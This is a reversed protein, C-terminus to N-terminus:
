KSLARELQAIIGMLHILPQMENGVSAYALTSSEVITDVEHM